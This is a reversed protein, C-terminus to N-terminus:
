LKIIINIKNNCKKKIPVTFVLNLFILTLVVLSFCKM